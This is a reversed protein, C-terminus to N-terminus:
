PAPVVVDRGVLAADRNLEPGVPLARVIAWPAPAPVDALELAAVASDDVPFRVGAGTILYRTSAHVDTVDLSRGRPIRVIDVGPGDGDAGALTVAGPREVLHAGVAVGTRGSQWTACIDDIGILEPPQDPYAGVPLADVLPSRAILEPPATAIEADADPDTFRILDAALRGIRQFGGPLVVYYEPTATRVVRLVTGIPFDPIGSPRGSQPIRPAVIAPVEPISDLLTASVTRVARGDLHLARATAPDAPDLLARKGDYLLYVSGDGRAVTVVVGARPDVDAPISDDGVAVATTGSADDCVAWRMDHPATVHGLAQPAGPIGLTPGGAVGAVADDDVLRPTVASGLILRASSLNAVPHLAEDIRVLLAGSQRSMVLAADAPIQQHGATGLVADVALIVAAVGCGAVLSLKQARLPDHRYPMRRRLVAYELRRM